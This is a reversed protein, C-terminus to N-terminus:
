LLTYIYYIYMHLTRNYYIIDHGPQMKRTYLVGDRHDVARPGLPHNVVRDSKLLCLASCVCM